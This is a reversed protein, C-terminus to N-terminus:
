TGVTEIAGAGANMVHNDITMAADAHSIADTATIWNNVCLLDGVVSDDIGTGLLVSGGGSI